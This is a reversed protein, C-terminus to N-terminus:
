EGIVSVMQHATGHKLDIHRLVRLSVPDVVWVKADKRSSVYVREQIPIIAVHYPEPSLPLTSQEHTKLDIRVLRNEQRSSAFLFRGDRTLALGHPDVGILFSGAIEGRGLDLVSVKGSNVNIVYLTQDDASLALHAPTDGGPLQRNISWNKTDIESIMNEGSNSVYIWSGDGSAVAYNPVFGTRITKVVKSLSIDVVSVLGSAPHTSVAYKGDPTIVNHHVSGPVRIQNLIRRESVDILYLIGRNEGRRSIIQKQESSSHHARHEETSMQEPKAPLETGSLETLSGAVITSGDPTIALGHSNIVGPIKAIVRDSDADVVAIANAAGLPMYVLVRAPSIVPFILLALLFGAM